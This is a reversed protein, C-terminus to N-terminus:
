IMFMNKKCLNLDIHGELGILVSHEDIAHGVGIFQASKELVLKGLVLNLLGVVIQDFGGFFFGAAFFCGRKAYEPLVQLLNKILAYRGQLTM